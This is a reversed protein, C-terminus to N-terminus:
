ESGRRCWVIRVESQVFLILVSERLVLQSDLVDSLHEGDVALQELV